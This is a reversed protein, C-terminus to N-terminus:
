YYKSRSIDKKYPYISLLIINGGAFSFFLANKQDLKYIFVTQQSTPRALSPMLALKELKEYIHSTFKESSHISWNEKLYLVINKFDKEAEASWIIKFAM